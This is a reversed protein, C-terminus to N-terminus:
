ALYKETAIYSAIFAITLGFIFSMGFTILLYKISLIQETVFYFNFTLSPLNSLYTHLFPNLYFLLALIALCSAVVAFFGLLLSEAMFPKKIYFKTAGLLRLIEIEDKKMAIKFLTATSLVIISM